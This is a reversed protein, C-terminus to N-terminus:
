RTAGKPARDVAPDRAPHRWSVIVFYLIAGLSMVGTLAIVLLSYDFMYRGSAPDYVTCFLRIRDLLESPAALNITDGLILQRLPEVVFEPRLQDGYVQRRIRLDRDLVSVQALHDFGHPAPFYVFGFETTLRQMTDADGSLFHWDRMDINRQLAYNRMREPTDVPTDFGITLVRFAGEGLVDRAEDVAVALRQTIVPCTHACSTFIFSVLAPRGALSRLDVARGNQDTLRYEGVQRGIAAQSTRLAAEEDLALATGIGAGLLSLVLCATARRLERNGRPM